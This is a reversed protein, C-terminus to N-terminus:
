ADPGAVAEVAVRYCGKRPAEGRERVNKVDVGLARLQSAVADRTIDAYSGPLSDALRAAITDCWLRDDGGFVTLVDAAFSRADGGDDEGLAYGSLVGARERMVRARAIIKEAANLDLYYTRVIQPAGEAKLWGTGADTKPRFLTANYGNKFSSTGLILDNEMYGPVHLCFRATVNGSIATPLSDRDPRQTALILIIGYARGLRIVYAADDAAQAGYKAHMFLNQAEDFIAVIPRLRLSKKAALERTLKGDPRQERPIKKFIGSRRELEARLKAMSDAGYAIAEDDLGGVYRHSIRALAELDGKGSFEHTWIDAAMDLAAASALVRVAGTKGQGPAAGILWNLEFLGAPVNRGRPDTGFPIDGFIDAHGSKLLPWTAGPCRPWTLSASGCTLVAKM